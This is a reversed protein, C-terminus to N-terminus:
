ESDVSDNDLVIEDVFSYEDKDEIEIVDGSSNAEV